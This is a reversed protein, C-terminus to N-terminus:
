NPSSNEPKLKNNPTKGPYESKRGEKMLEHNLKEGPYESKRGEKMLERNLWYFLALIFTIEVRDFKIALGNLWGKTGLPVHCAASLLCEIHQVHYACSDFKSDM